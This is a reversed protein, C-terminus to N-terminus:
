NEPAFWRCHGTSCVMELSASDIVDQEIPSQLIGSDTHAEANTCKGSLAHGIEHALVLAKDQVDQAIVISVPVCGIVKTSGRAKRGDKTTIQGVISVPIGGPSLCADLGTAQYWRNVVAQTTDYMESSPSFMYACAPQVPEEVTYADATPFPEVLGSIDEGQACGAVFAALLLKKM